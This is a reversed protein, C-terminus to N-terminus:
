ITASAVILMLVLFLILKPSSSKTSKKSADAVAADHLRSVQDSVNNVLEKLGEAGNSKVETPQFSRFCDITKLANVLSSQILPLTLWSSSSNSLNKQKELDAKLANNALTLEDVREKSDALGAKVQM